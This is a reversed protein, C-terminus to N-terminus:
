TGVYIHRNKQIKVKSNICSLVGRLASSQTLKLSLESKLCSQKSKPRESFLDRPDIETVWVGQIKRLFINLFWYFGAGFYCFILWKSWDKASFQLSRPISFSPTFNFLDQYQFPYLVIFNIVIINIVIFYYFFLVVM